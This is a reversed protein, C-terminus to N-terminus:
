RLVPMKSVHFDLIVHSKNRARIIVASAQGGSNGSTGTLMPVFSTLVILASLKDEFANLIMNQASNCKGSDIKNFYPKNVSCQETHTSNSNLNIKYDYEYINCKDYSVFAVYNQIEM